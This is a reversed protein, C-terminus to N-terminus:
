KTAELSIVVNGQLIRDKIGSLYTIEIDYVGRQVTIASTQAPTLSINFKGAVADVITCTFTAIPTLDTYQERIMSAITAGTLDIAVGLENKLTITQNYTVGQQVLMNYKGAAM